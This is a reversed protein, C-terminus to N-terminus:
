SDRPIPSFNRVAITYWDGYPRNQDKGWYTFELGWMQVSATAEYKVSSILSNTLVTTSFVSRSRRRKDWFCSDRKRELALSAM